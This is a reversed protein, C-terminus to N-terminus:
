GVAPVTAVGHGPGGIFGYSRGCPMAPGLNAQIEAAINM